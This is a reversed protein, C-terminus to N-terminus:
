KIKYIQNYKYSGQAQISDGLVRKTTNTNKLVLWHMADKVTIRDGFLNRYDELAQEHSTPSVFGCDRCKWNGHMRHMPLSGCELCAAGRLIDSTELKYFELLNRSDPLNYKSLYQRLKKYQHSNLVTNSYQQQWAKLLEPLKSAHSLNEIPSISSIKSRQNTVFVHTLVPLEPLRLHQLLAELQLKQRTVQQLPCPFITEIGNQNRIIQAYHPDFFIDGAYHKIELVVLFSPSLFLTDIQFRYSNSVSKLKLQHFIDVSDPVFEYFYDMSQEGYYGSEFQSADQSIREYKEHTIPIRPLLSRYQLLSLPITRPNLLM